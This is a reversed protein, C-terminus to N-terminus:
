CLHQCLFELFNSSLLQCRPSRALHQSASTLAAVQILGIAVAMAVASHNRHMVGPVDDTLTPTVLITTVATVVLLLVIIKFYRGVVKMMYRSM